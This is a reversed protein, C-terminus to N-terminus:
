CCRSLIRSTGTSIKLWCSLSDVLWPFAQLVLPAKSSVKTTTAKSDAYTVSLGGLSASQIEKNSVGGTIATPNKQLALALESVVETWVDTIKKGCCDKTEDFCLQGLLRQAENLWVQHNPGIALWEANRPTTLFYADADAVTVTPLTM